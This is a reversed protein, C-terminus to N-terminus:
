LQEGEDYVSFEPEFEYSFLEKRTNNFIGELRAMESIKLGKEDVVCCQGDIISTKMNNSKNKVFSLQPADIIGRKVLSTLYEPNLLPNKFGLQKGEQLITGLFINAEQLLENKRRMIEPDRSMDPLGVLGGNIVGKVLQCSEIIDLSKAAHKAECYSVVHIIHPKVTMQLLTSTCLQSKAIAPNPSFHALGARTERYVQFNEDILSEVIEIMALIRALDMKLSNGSPTNFMLQEIYNKVGLEKAIYASLYADAVVLHDPAMRLGWQHPDNIEVPIGRQAYWKIAAFHESIADEISATGRGDLESYWFIPIAAWANQLTDDFMEANKILDQTGSYIRLLPHNGRRTNQSLSRLDTKSRIPVGGAGKTMLKLVEPQQLWEQATQDPAISIVDLIEADAIIQVGKLTKQMSPLGFHARLIPSPYSDKIRSILDNAYFKKNIKLSEPKQLKQLIEEISEGGMFLEKFFNMPKLKKCLAPLGGFYYERNDLGEIKIQNIFEEIITLGIKPTLRYSIGINKARSRKIEEILRRIGIAPGLFKFEYGISEIIHSFNLIGAVHVCESICAGLFLNSQLNEM